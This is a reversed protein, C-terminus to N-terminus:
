EFKAVFGETVDMSTGVVEILEGSENVVPHGVLHIHKISGDPLVTGLHHFVEYDTKDLHAREVIELVVPRDEPHLRNRFFDARGHTRIPSSITYENESGAIVNGNRIIPGTRGAACTSWDKVKLSTQKM